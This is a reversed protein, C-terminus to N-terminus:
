GGFYILSAWVVLALSILLRSIRAQTPLRITVESPDVMLNVIRAFAIVSYYILSVLLFTEATM